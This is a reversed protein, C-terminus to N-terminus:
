CFISLRDQIDIALNKQIHILESKCCLYNSMGYLMGISLKKQHKFNIVIRM